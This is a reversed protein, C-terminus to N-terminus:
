LTFICSLSITNDSLKGGISILAKTPHPPKKLCDTLNNQLCTM